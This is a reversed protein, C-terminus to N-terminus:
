SNIVLYKPADPQSIFQHITDEHIRLSWEIKNTNMIDGKVVLIRTAMNHWESFDIFEQETTVLVLQNEQAHFLLDKDSTVEKFQTIHKANPYVDDLNVLSKRAINQDFLLSM